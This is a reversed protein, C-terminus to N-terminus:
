GGGNVFDRDIKENIADRIFGATVEVNPGDPVRLAVSKTAGIEKVGPRTQIVVPCTVVAGLTKPIIVTATSKPLVDLEKETPYTEEMTLTVPVITHGSPVKGEGWYRVMYLEAAEKSAFAEPTWFANQGNTIGWLDLHSRRPEIPM